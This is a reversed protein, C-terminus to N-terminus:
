KALGAKGVARLMSFHEMGSENCFVEKRGVKKKGLEYIMQSGRCGARVSHTGRRGETGNTGNVNWPNIFMVGASTDRSLWLKSIHWGRKLCRLTPLRRRCM